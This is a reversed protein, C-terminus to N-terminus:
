RSRSGRAAARSRCPCRGPRTPDRRCRGRSGRRPRASPRRARARRPSRRRRRARLRERSIARTSQSSPLSVSSVVTKRELVVPRERHAQGLDGPRATSGGPRLGAAATARPSAARPGARRRAGPSPDSAALGRRGPQPQAAAHARVARRAARADRLGGRLVRPLVGLHAPLAADLGLAEVESRRLLFRERWERLTRAYHPGIERVDHVMLDSSRRAATTIAELSPLM